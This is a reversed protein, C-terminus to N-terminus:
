SRARPSRRRSITRSEYRLSEKAMRDYESCVREGDNNDDGSASVHFERSPATNRDMLSGCSCLLLFAVSIAMITKMAYLYSNEKQAPEKNKVIKWGSVDQFVLIVDLVILDIVLFAFCILRFRWVM